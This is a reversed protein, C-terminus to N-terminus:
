SAAKRLREIFTSWLGEDPVDADIWVESYGELDVKRLTDYLRSLVGEPDSTSGWLIKKAREPYKRDSFGIILNAKEFDGNLHIKAKPAYHRLIQGPCIIEGTKAGKPLYGLIPAFSEPAIAGLRGLTWVTGNFVLITSEVGKLCPGGDLVPFTDGFDAEVHEPHSASPRGSPNASPAVLPGTLKLLERAVPHSPIRFAQTPLGARVIGPIKPSQIPIVLTLPGPWFAEALESFCSPEKEMFPVIGAISDLHMILPNHRPRNKIRFIEEIAQPQDYCAALGYVTETPIAVVEGNKLLRAAEQLSIKM